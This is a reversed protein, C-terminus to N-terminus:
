FTYKCICLVFFASLQLFDPVHLCSKLVFCVQKFSYSSTQLMVLLPFVFVAIFSHSFSSESMRQGKYLTYLFILVIKEGYKSMLKNLCLYM